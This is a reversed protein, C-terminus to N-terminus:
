LGHISFIVLRVTMFELTIHFHHNKTMSATGYQDKRSRLSSEEIVLITAHNSGYRVFVFCAAQLCKTHIANVGFAPVVPADWRALPDNPMELVLTVQDMLDKREDTRLTRRSLQGRGSAAETPIM